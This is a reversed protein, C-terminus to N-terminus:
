SELRIERRIGTLNWSPNRDTGLRIELRFSMLGSPPIPLRAPRLCWHLLGHRNSGPEPYVKFRLDKFTLSKRNKKQIKCWMQVVLFECIAPTKGPIAHVKIPFSSKTGENEPTDLATESHKQVRDISFQPPTCITGPVSVVSFIVVENSIALDFRRM